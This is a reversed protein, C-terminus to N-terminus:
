EAITIGNCTKHTILHDNCSVKTASLMGARFTTWQQQVCAHVANNASNQRTNFMQSSILLRQWKQLHLFPEQNFLQLHNPGSCQGSM